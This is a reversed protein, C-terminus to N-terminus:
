PGSPICRGGRCVAASATCSRHQSAQGAMCSRAACASDASSELSEVADARVAQRIGGNECGCCDDVLVCEADRSCAQNEPTPPGTRSLGSETMGGGSGCAVLACACLALLWGRMKM